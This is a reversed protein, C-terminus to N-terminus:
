RYKFEILNESILPREIIQAGIKCHTINLSQLSQPLSIMLSAEVIVANDRLEFTIYHLTIDVHILNSKCQTYLFAINPVRLVKLSSPFELTTAKENSEKMCYVRVLLEEM